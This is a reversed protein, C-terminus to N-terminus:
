GTEVRIQHSNERMLNVIILYNLTVDEDILSYIRERIRNM